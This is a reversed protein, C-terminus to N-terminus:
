AGWAVFGEVELSQIAREGWSDSAPAVAKWDGDEWVVPVPWAVLDNPFAVTSVALVVLANDPGRDEFRFGRIVLPSGTQGSWGSEIRGALSDRDPSAAMLEEVVDPLRQQSSFWTLFNAAALVAGTPTHAFCHSIGEVVGPGAGAVGPVSLGAGVEVPVSPIASSPVSGDADSLGCVSGSSEAAGPPEGSGEGEGSAVAEGLASSAAVGADGDRGAAVWVLGAVLAVMVVIAVVFRASALPSPQPDEAM